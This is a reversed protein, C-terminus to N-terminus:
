VNVDTILVSIMSGLKLDQELFIIVNFYEVFIAYNHLSTYLHVVTYNFNPGAKNLIIMFKVM